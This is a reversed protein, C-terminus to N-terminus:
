PLASRYELSHNMGYAQPNYIAFIGTKKKGQPTLYAADEVKWYDRGKSDKKPKGWRRVLAEYLGEVPQFSLTFENVVPPSGSDDHYYIAVNMFGQEPFQIENSEKFAPVAQILAEKSTGLVAKEIPAPLSPKKGPLLTTVAAYRKYEIVTHTGGPYWLKVRMGHAGDLWNWEKIVADASPEVPKGWREEFFARADPFLDSKVTVTVGFLADGWGDKRIQWNEGTVGDKLEPALKLVEEDKMGLRIGHLSGPLAFDKGAGFVAVADFTAGKPPIANKALAKWGAEDYASMKASIGDLTVTLTEGPGATITLPPCASAKGDEQCTLTGTTLTSGELKAEGRVTAFLKQTIEMSPANMFVGMEFHHDPRVDLSLNFTIGKGMKASPDIEGMWRKQLWSGGGGQSGTSACGLAAAFAVMIVTRSGNM